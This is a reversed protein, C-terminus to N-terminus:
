QRPTISLQLIDDHDDIAGFPIIILMRVLLYM